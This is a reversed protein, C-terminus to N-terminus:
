RENSSEGETTSEVVTLLLKSGEDFEKKLFSWVRGFDRWKKISGRSNLLPVLSNLKPIRFWLSFSEGDSECIRVVIEQIEKDGHCAKLQAMELAVTYSFSPTPKTFLTAKNEIKRLAACGLKFNKEGKQASNDKAM